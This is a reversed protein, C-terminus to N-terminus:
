LHFLSLFDYVMFYINMIKNKTFMSKPKVKINGFHSSLQTM